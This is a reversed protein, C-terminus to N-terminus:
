EYYPKIRRINITEQIIGRQIVVTGNNNVKIIPYPGLTPCDLKRQLTDANKLIKNGVM